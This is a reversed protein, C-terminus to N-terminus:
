SGGQKFKGDTPCLKVSLKGLVLQELTEFDPSTFYDQNVVRPESSFLQLLRRDIRNSIGISIMTAQNQLAAAEAISPGRRTNPFPIGDTILIVLNAVDPRDGARGLVQQRAARLAEDTSTQGGIYEM